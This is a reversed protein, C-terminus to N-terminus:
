GSALADEEGAGEPQDVREVAGSTLGVGGGEELAQEVQTIVNAKEGLFPVGGSASLEAVGRLCEAVERQDDAGDLKVL